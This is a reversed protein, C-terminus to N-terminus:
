IVFNSPILLGNIKQVVGNSCGVEGLMNIYGNLTMTGKNNYFNIESKANKTDLKAMVLSKLTKMTLIRPIISYNLIALCSNRDLNMFFSEGYQDLLTKDDCVFLTSTFLEQAMRVDLQAVQAIYKFITYDPQTLFGMVTDKPYCPESLLTKQKDPLDYTQLLDRYQWYGQYSVM